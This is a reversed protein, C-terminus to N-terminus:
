EIQEWKVNRNTDVQQALCQSCHPRDDSMYGLSIYYRRLLQTTTEDVHLNLGEIVSVTHKVYM